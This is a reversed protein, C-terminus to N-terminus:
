RGYGDAARQWVRVGSGLPDEWVLRWRDAYANLYPPLYLDTRSWYWRDQLLYGVRHKVRAVQEMWNPNTTPEIQVAPHDSYLFILYAPRGMVVTNPAANQKLWACAAYFGGEARSRGLPYGQATTTREQAIVMGHVHLFYVVLLAAAMVQLAGTPISGARRKIWGCMAEAALFLFLFLFPLIPVLFRANRWPWMAALFWFLAAFGVSLALGRRWAVFVGGLILLALPVALATFVRGWASGASASYLLTRPLLGIYAPIGTRAREWIGALSRPIRGAGPTTPDRLWFQNTYTTYTVGPPARRIIRRNRLQWGGMVFLMVALATLGWRWGFRRWFWVTQALLLSVGATRTLFAAGACVLAVIRKWVPVAVEQPSRRPDREVLAVSALCLLLFPIESMVENAYAALTPCLVFALLAATMWGFPLRARELLAYLLPLLLLSFVLLSAKVLIVVGGPSRGTVLLWFAILAPFGPPYLTDLPRQPNNILRLEGARALSLGLTMYRGSDDAPNLYPTVQLAWLVVLLMGCGVILLHKPRM